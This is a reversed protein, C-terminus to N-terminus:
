QTCAHARLRRGEPGDSVGRPREVVKEPQEHPVLDRSEDIHAAERRRPLIRVEIVVRQVRRERSGPDLVHRQRVDAAAARCGCCRRACCRTERSHRNCPSVPIERPRRAGRPARGACSSPPSTSPPPTTASGGRALRRSDRPRRIDHTGCGRHACSPLAGKCRPPACRSRSITTHAPSTLGRTRPSPTRMFLYLTPSWTLQFESAPRTLPVITLTCAASM